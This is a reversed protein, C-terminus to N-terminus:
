VGVPQAPTSTYVEEPNSANVVAGIVRIGVASLQQSAAYVRPMQSVERLVSLLVADAQRGLLLSDNAALVPHSDVVVFDFEEALREFIAELGDRSLALLVERDWQGAPMVWLNDQPSEVAAEAVEIEGLLVESFGPQQATEFLEHVTPRRLDGDLLLTKRGARALSTALASALTTKGEGAMASTVMVVRTSRTNADHLLRTRIADISEMVPTGELDSEGEATVLYRALHPMRPVAGVVRIGLGRSIESVSRVRRKRFELLALGMSVAGFVAIPAVGAALMQKKTDRRMLEADQFKRIRNTARLEVKERELRGGIEELIKEDRRIEDALQEYESALVPTKAAEKALREIEKRLTEELTTLSEVQKALQGRMIAPDEVFQPTGNANTPIGAANQAAQRELSKRVRDAVLGERRTLQSRLTSMRNRIYKVEFYNAGFGKSRLEQIEEEYRGLRERYGRVEGDRDLAADVADRFAAEDIPKLPEGKENTESSPRTAKEIAKVRADFTELAARSEVLKFGIQVHQQKSDRLAQTVELRQERWLSPDTTGLKEALNKLNDKKRKLADVSDAYVKELETVKRNREGQKAYVIDELYAEKIGNVVALSVQPDPHAYLITLLESNEKFEVRLEESIAQATDVAGGDLGLRKVEDRKLASAIVRRSMVEDATTKLFTKFDGTSANSSSLISDRAYGVQLQAFATFKPVLAYWAAIGAIVGLTGGLLVASIWRHRLASLLSFVDPAANLGPPQVNTPQSRTAAPTDARGPAPASGRQTPGPRPMSSSPLGADHPM